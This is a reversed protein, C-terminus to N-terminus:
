ATCCGALGTAIRQNIATPDELVTGVVRDYLHTFDRRVKNTEALSKGAAYMDDDIDDLLDELSKGGYMKAFEYQPAVRQTYARMVAMPDM